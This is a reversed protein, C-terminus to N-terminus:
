TASPMLDDINESRALELIDSYSVTRHGHLDVTPHSVHRSDLVRKMVAAKARWGFVRTCAALCVMAYWYMRESRTGRQRVVALFRSIPRMHEFLSRFQIFRYNSESVRVGYEPGFNLELAKMALLWSTNMNTGPLVVDQTAEILSKEPVNQLFDVGESERENFYFFGFSKPSVGIAVLPWPCALVTDATLLLANMAYYDPYPSQFFPGRPRLREIVRRSVIGHQMNFPFSVEFALSRRVAGTAVERPLLAAEKTGRLFDGNFYQVFAKGDDISLIGPYAYQIAATFMMEPDGHEGLLADAKRLSRGMLCDDDGLMIVYEGSGRELARNWNETVPVLTDTRVYKIRSDGFAEVVAKTDDESANDSVVIEWDKFDQDLVSQIALRLLDARNRTPLLVSFRV